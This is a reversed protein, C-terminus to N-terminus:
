SLWLGSPIFWGKVATTLYMPDVFTSYRPRTVLRGIQFGGIWYLAYM